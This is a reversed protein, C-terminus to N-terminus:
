TASWEFPLIAPKTLVMPVLYESTQKSSHNLVLDHLKREFWQQEWLRMAKLPNAHSRSPIHFWRTGLAKLARPECDLVFEHYAIACTTEIELNHAHFSRYYKFLNNDKELM